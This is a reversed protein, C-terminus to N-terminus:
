ESGRRKLVVSDEDEAIEVGACRMVFACLMAEAKCSNRTLAHDDEDFVKLFGMDDKAHRQYTELLSESCAPAITEDNSGHLLLLPLSKAAVRAIGGTEDTQAAVAACGVVREDMGGVSMVTQAGSGWGVLVFRSIAYDKRLYGMAAQVDVVCSKNCEPVRYDMRLVPIGRRLSAIDDAMSDYM